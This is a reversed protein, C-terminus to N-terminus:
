SRDKNKSAAESKLIGAVFFLSSVLLLLMEGIDGLFPKATLTGTLVNAFFVAFLAAAIGYAM